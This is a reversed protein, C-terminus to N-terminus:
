WDDATFAECLDGAVFNADDVVPYGFAVEGGEFDAAIGGDVEFHKALHAQFLVEAQSKEIGGGHLQRLGEPRKQGEGNEERRHPTKKKQDSV